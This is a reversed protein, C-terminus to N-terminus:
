KDYPSFHKLAQMVRDKVNLSADEKMSELQGQFGMEKLRKVRSEVKSEDGDKPWSM